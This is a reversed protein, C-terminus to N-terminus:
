LATGRKVPAQGQGRVNAPLMARKPGRPVVTHDLMYERMKRMHAFHAEIDRAWEAYEAPTMTDDPLRSTGFMRFRYEEDKEHADQIDLDFIDHNM